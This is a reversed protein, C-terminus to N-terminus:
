LEYRLELPGSENELRKLQELIYDVRYGDAATSGLCRGEAIGAVFAKLEEAWQSEWFTFLERPGEGDALHVSARPPIKGMWDAGRAVLRGNVGNVEVIEEWTSAAYGLGRARTQVMQLSIHLGGPFRFLFSNAYENGSADRKLAGWVAEPLGFYFMMLDLLHSGSHVLFGGGARKIDAHWSAPERGPGELVPDGWVTLRFSAATVPAIQNLRQKVASFAPNFRKMYGMQFVLGSSEARRAIELSQAASTTLPKECFVHKAADLAQLAAVYHADNPLAIIVARVEPDSLLESYTTCVRAGVRQATRAAKEEDVDCVTHIPIGALEAGELLCQSIIGCGVLAIGSAETKQDPASSM